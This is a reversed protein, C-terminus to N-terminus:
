GGNSANVGAKSLTDLVIMMPNLVAKGTGNSQLPPVLQSQTQSASSAAPNNDSDASAHHAHHHHHHAGMAQALDQINPLQGSKSANTFDTALQNLQNAATSNGEAQATQAASQLNAAIQQTVQAYKTPDWQQIRQLTSILQGFPSLQGNDSSADIGTVGSGTTNTTMAGQLATSLVSPLYSGPVNNITNMNEKDANKDGSARHRLNNFLCARTMAQSDFKQCAFFEQCGVRTVLGYIGRRRDFFLM